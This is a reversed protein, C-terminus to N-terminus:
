CCFADYEYWEKAIKKGDVSLDQIFPAIPAAMEVLNAAFVGWYRDDRYTM